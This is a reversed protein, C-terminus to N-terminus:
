FCAWLRNALDVAMHPSLYALFVVLLVALTLAWWLIRLGPKPM